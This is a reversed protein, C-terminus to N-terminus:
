PIRVCNKGARKAAYVGEDAAKILSEFTEMDDKRVAVGISVSGNWYGDGTQVRMQSVNKRVTEAIQLGGSIDTAPCIILFEDGGLRSVFDDTRVSHQLIKSLECLVDDGADHGYTDNVDKFHDADIMMLSIPRGSRTSEEWHKKLQQIAHRRNPLKTLVDTLSIELLDMNAQYLEQTREKVKQELSENLRLLEKNRSSVIQFLGNIALLLPETSSNSKKEIIEFAKSPDKGSQIEEIQKAMNKDSGLIHYALWHTLFDLLQKSLKEKDSGMKKHLSKVDNLFNLHEEVHLDYHSKDIKIEQMLNEEETFHYQAYKALEQFLPELDDTNSEISLLSDGFKNLLDILHRHQDDVNKLGTLFNNNFQFAGM